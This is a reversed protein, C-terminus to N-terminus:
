YEMVKAEKYLSHTTVASFMLQNSTFQVRFFARSTAISNFAVLLKMEFLLVYYNLLLKTFNQQLHM